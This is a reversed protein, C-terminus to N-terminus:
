RQFKIRIDVVVRRVADAELVMDAVGLLRFSAFGGISAISCFSPTPAVTLREIPPGPRRLQVGKKLLGHKCEFIDLIRFSISTADLCHQIV